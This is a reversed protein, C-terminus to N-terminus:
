QHAKRLRKIRPFQNPWYGGQGIIVRFTNDQLTALMSGIHKIFDPTDCRAPESKLVGGNHRRQMVCGVLFGELAFLMLGSQGEKLDDLDIELYEVKRELM